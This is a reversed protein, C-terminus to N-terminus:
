EPVFALLQDFGVVHDFYDAEGVGRELESAHVLVTRVPLTRPIKLRAVKEQVEDIVSAGVNRRAKM